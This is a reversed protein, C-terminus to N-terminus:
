VTPRASVFTQWQMAACRTGVGARSVRVLSTSPTLNGALLGTEWARAVQQFFYNLLM